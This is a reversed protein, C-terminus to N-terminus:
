EGIMKELDALKADEDYIGAILVYPTGAVAKAYSLKRSPEQEGPKPFM